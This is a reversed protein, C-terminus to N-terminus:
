QDAKHAPTMKSEDTDSEVNDTSNYPATSRPNTQSGLEEEEEEEEEIAVDREEQLQLPRPHPACADSCAESTAGENCDGDRVVEQKLCGQCELLWGSGM